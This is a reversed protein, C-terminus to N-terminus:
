EFEWCDQREGHRNHAILGEALKPDNDSIWDSVESNLPMLARWGFCSWYATDTGSDSEWTGLNMLTGCSSVSLMVGIMMM